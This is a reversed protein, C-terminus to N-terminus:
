GGSIEGDRWGRRGLVVEVRGEGCRVRYWFVGGAWVVGGLGFGGWGLVGGV